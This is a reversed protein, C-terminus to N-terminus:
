YFIFFQNIIPYNLLTKPQLPKLNAISIKKIFTKLQNVKLTLLQSIRIGTIFLLCFTITLRRTKFNNSNKFGFDVYRRLIIGTETPKENPTAQILHDSLNNDVLFGPAVIVKYDHSNSRSILFPYLKYETSM